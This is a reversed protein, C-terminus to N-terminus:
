VNDDDDGAKAWAPKGGKSGKSSDDGGFVKSALSAVVAKGAAKGAAEAVPKTWDSSTDSVYSFLIRHSFLSFNTKLNM